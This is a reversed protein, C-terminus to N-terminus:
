KIDDLEWEPHVYRAAMLRAIAAADRVNVKGDNNADAMAGGLTNLFEPMLNPDFYSKALNRTILAADRIDLKGNGNADGRVGIGFPITDLVNQSEDVIQATFKMDDNKNFNGAIVVAGASSVTAILAGIILIKLVPKFKKKM